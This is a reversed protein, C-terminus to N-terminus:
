APVALMREKVSYKITLYYFGIGISTLVTILAASDVLRGTYLVSGIWVGFGCFLMRSTMMLASASGRLNPFIGLTKAVVTCFCIAMGMTLIAMCITMAVASSPFYYTLPTILITSIISMWLGIKQLRLEGFFNLL